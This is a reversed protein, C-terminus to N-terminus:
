IQLPVDSKALEFEEVGTKEVTCDVISHVTSYQVLSLAALRFTRNKRDRALVTYCGKERWSAYIINYINSRSDRRAVADIGKIGANQQIGSDSEFQRFMLRIYLIYIQAQVTNTVARRYVIYFISQRTERSRLKWNGPVKGYVPNVISEGSRWDYRHRYLIQYQACGYLILLRTERSRLKRWVPM